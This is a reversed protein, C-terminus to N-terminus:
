GGGTALYRRVSTAFLLAAMGHRRVLYPWRYAGVLVGALQPDSASAAGARRYLFGAVLRELPYEPENRDARCSANRDVVPFVTSGCLVAARNTFRATKYVTRSGRFVM